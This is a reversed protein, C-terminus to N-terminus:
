LLKREYLAAYNGKKELLKGHGGQEVIRGKKMVYIVHADRITSLRHAIILTTRGRSLAAMADKIYAESENDLSSTAEDFIIIRPNKLFIRAIALRQRQGGSLRVGREGIPTQWGQPLSEIFDLIHARRATEECEELTAEPRGYLINELVTDDFLFPHQQVIGVTNRLSRQTVRHVSQGDILVQGKRPEYFRPILAALTSKGAGSEGVLAATEGAPIM